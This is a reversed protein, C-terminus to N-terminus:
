KSDATDLNLLTDPFYVSFSSGIGPHGIASVFGQHNRMIKKCIALGIGTGKYNENSHLRQFLEFIM